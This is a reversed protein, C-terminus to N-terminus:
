GGFSPSDRSAPSASKVASISKSSRGLARRESGYTTMLSGTDSRVPPCDPKFGGLIIWNAMEEVQLFRMLEAPTTDLLAALQDIPLLHWNRRCMTMFFYGRTKQEPPIAVSTALGMSQAMSRVNELSTGLVTAIREPEAACWNRWVVAHARDPFHSLLEAAPVRVPEAARVAGAMSATSAGLAVVYHFWSRDVM